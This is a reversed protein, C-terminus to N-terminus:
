SKPRVRRTSQFISRIYLILVISLFLSYFISKLITINSAVTVLRLTLENPHSLMIFVFYNELYDFIIAILPLLVFYKEFSDRRALTLMALLGFSGIFLPYFLDLILQGKLYMSLSDNSLGNIFQAAYEYSYGSPSMDFIQEGGTSIIAPITVRLMLTYIIQSLLFFLVIIKFNAYPKVKEWLLDVINKM